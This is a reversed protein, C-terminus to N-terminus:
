QTGTEFFWRSAECDVAGYPDKDQLFAAMLYDGHWVGPVPDRDWALIKSIVNQCDALTGVAIRGMVLDPFYDTGDLCSYYLDTM